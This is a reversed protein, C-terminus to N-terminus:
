HVRRYDKMLLFSALKEGTHLEVKPGDFAVVTVVRDEHHKHAWRSDVDISVPSPPPPEVIQATPQNLSQTSSVLAQGTIMELTLTEGILRDLGLQALVEFGRSKTDLPMDQRAADVAQQIEADTLRTFLERPIRSPTTKSLQVQLEPLRSKNSCFMLARLQRMGVPDRAPRSTLVERPIPALALLAAGPVKEPTLPQSNRREGQGDNEVSGTLPLGDSAELGQTTSRGEQPEAVAARDDGPHEVPEDLKPSLSTQVETSIVEFSQLVETSIVEPMAVTGPPMSLTGGGPVTLTGPPVGPIGPPLVTPIGGGERQAESQKQQKAQNILIELAERRQTLGEVWQRRPTLTYSNSDNEHAAQRNRHQRMRTQKLVLGVDVLEKMARMARNRLSRSNAAAGVSARFCKEGISQYSPFVLGNKGACRVLHAYVRFADVTLPADDLEWHIQFPLDDRGEEIHMNDNRSM